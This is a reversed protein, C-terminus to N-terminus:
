KREENTLLLITTDNFLSTHDVYSAYSDDLVVCKVGYAGCVSVSSDLRNPDVVCLVLLPAAYDCSSIDKIVVGLDFESIVLCSRVGAISSGICMGLTSRTSVGIVVSSSTKVIAKYVKQVLSDNNPAIFYSVVGCNRHVHSVLDNIKLM